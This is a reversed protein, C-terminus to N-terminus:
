PKDHRKSVVAM